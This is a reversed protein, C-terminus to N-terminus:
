LRVNAADAEPPRTDIELTISLKEDPMGSLGAEHLLRFASGNRCTGDESREVQGGARIGGFGFRTQIKLM